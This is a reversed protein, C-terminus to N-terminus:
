LGGLVPTEHLCLYKVTSTFSTFCKPNVKETLVILKKLVQNQHFRLESSLRKIREVSTFYLIRSNLEKLFFSKFNSWDMPEVCRPQM